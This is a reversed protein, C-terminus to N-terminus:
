KSYLNIFTFKILNFKKRSYVQLDSYIVQENKM